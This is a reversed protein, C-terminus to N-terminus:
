RLDVSKLYEISHARQIEQNSAFALKRRMVIRADDSLDFTLFKSKASEVVRVLESINTIKEGNVAYLRRPSFSDDSYGHNVDHSLIQNLIVIQEEPDTKRGYMYEKVFRVPAKCLWNKGYESKMYDESLVTFVLGAISYYSPRKDYLHRPVLHQKKTIKVKINKEKGDRLVRIKCTENVFKKTLIYKFSLREHKRFPITGDDAVPVDDVRLIVDQKRLVKHAHSLPVTEKIMPGTQDPSLKLYERICDNEVSQWTAGLM